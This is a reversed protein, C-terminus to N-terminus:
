ASAVSAVSLTDFLRSSAGVRERVGLLTLAYWINAQVSSIVPKGLERELAPVVDLTPWRACAIFLGDASPAADITERCVRYVEAPSLAGIAANHTVRASRIAQVDFGDSELFRVLLDDLEPPYPTAVALRRVGLHRLAEVECAIGPVIPVAFKASLRERMERHSGHGLQTFLPSGGLIVVDAHNEVLEAAAEELRDIQRTINARDLDRITGTSNLLMFGDPALRYFEHVLIDGRSPAVHGIRARWGYSRRDSAVLAIIRDAM